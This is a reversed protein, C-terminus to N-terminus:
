RAEEVQESGDVEGGGGNPLVMVKVSADRDMQAAFADNIEALPRRHTIMAAIELEGAALLEYVERWDRETYAYSGLLRVEKRVLPNADCSVEQEYLAVMVVTGAPRVYNAIASDVVAVSGTCEFATAVNAFEYGRHSDGGALERLQELPDGAAPDLVVDAGGTRAAQRRLESFDMGIVTSAGKAKLMRVVGQGIPGLGLVLAPEDLPHEALNVARASASFPELLAAEGIELGPPIPFTTATAPVAIREAFGGDVMRAKVCLNTRGEACRECEGCFVLPILTIRDGVAVAEVEAGVAVVTGAYEHGLMSGPDIWGQTYMHLDSGCVGCADVRLVFEAAGAEPEAVEEVNIWSKDRYVGARM